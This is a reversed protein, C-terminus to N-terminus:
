LCAGDRYSWLHKFAVNFGFLCVFLIYLMYIHLKEM